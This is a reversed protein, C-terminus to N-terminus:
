KLNRERLLQELEQKNYKPKKNILKYILFLPILMFFGFGNKVLSYCVIGILFGIFGANIMAESKMKKVEQLLEEDTLENLQKQDM